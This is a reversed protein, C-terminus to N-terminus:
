ASNVRRGTRADVPHTVLWNRVFAVEEDRSQITGDLRGARLQDLIEGYVPGRPVGLQTLATGDLEARTHQWHQHYATLIGVAPSDALIVTLLAQAVPAVRDLIAVVQSPRVGPTELLELNRRLILLGNVLRQTESRLGLRENLEAEAGAPLRYALIGWYLREIPERRLADPAAQGQLRQRLAVFSARTWEDMTLDPHIHHLVGLEGLRLLAREPEEEQLIRELEHRIRAPTVRDLMELADRLLERTRVGIRFGFRQEYRVARLIRTPDDVFSLSHLVRVVGERLDNLGGYFDLLEGWRDPNLCLALTNITFDRRHLDLKISSREVTPLVTPASYFETRATVFDLHTPLDGGAEGELGALLKERQVPHQGDALIWKATGFRRHPVIRGGYLAQMRGAFEIANGEIVIDMDLATVSLARGDLLLDRVFGGVLYVSYSMLDVEEGILHLLYYQLPPLTARLRQEIEGARHRPLSAEDWLKILDTRTVIGIIDGADNVVPIQGWDSHIMVKRLTPVSDEPRVTVQGAHMFRSVPQDGLGHNIARDVDRRTLVGLLEERGDPVQRLVPFGEHGYRRMITAAEAVSIEPSLSQPHGVSMIDRVSIAARSSEQILAVIRDHVSQMTAQGKQIPAAAARTHGGGGLGRAVGGVDIEDTTSRAVVQIIDSLDVILFIADTEHYDRLRSALASLEDRFGPAQAQSIVVTHGAIELYESNDILLELLQRQSESLPHHLFDAVVELNVGREPEMLWALCAADRHTTSPYTLSGTDEHIGLALLTAHAPSLSINEQILKEVLLTTNAGVAGNWLEWGSPLDGDGSHHDIVLVPVSEDMGKVWNAARTDVLIAHSVRGRPLDAATIFPFQNRYLALFSEVNRNRQHPLVPLANRFLLSAGLMSALADFDTHEHSLIVESPKSSM